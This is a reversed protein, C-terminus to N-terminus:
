ISHKIRLKNRYETWAVDYIAKQYKISELPAKSEILELLKQGEEACKKELEKLKMTTYNTTAM